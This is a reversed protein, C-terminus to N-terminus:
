ERDDPVGNPALAVLADLADTLRYWADGWEAAGEVLNGDYDIDPFDPDTGVLARAADVVAQQASIRAAATDIAILLAPGGCTALWFASWQNPLEGWVLLDLNGSDTVAQSLADLCQRAEDIMTM